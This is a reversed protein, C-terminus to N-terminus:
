FSAEIRTTGSGAHKPPANGTLREYLAQQGAALRRFAEPSNANRSRSVGGESWSLYDLALREAQTSYHRLYVYAQQAAEVDTLDRALELWVDLVGDADDTPAKVLTEGPYQSPKVVGRPYVLDRPELAM